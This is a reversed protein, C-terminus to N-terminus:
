EFKENNRKWTENLAKKIDTAYFVKFGDDVNFIGTNSSNNVLNNTYRKVFDYLQKETFKMIKQKM